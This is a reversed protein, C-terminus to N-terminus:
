YRPRKRGTRPTKAASIAVSDDAPGGPTPRVSDDTPGGATPGKGRDKVKEKQDLVISLIDYAFQPFALVMGRFEDEAEHRLVHGAVSDARQIQPRM